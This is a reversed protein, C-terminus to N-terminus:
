SNENQLNKPNILDELSKEHSLKDFKGLEKLKNLITENFVEQTNLTKFFDELIKEMISKQDNGNM